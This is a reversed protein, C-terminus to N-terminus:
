QTMARIVSFQISAMAAPFRTVAGSGHIEDDGADGFITDNGQGGTLVDNGAGGHMTVAISSSVGSLDIVDDGAGGDVIIKHVGSFRGFGKVEVPSQDVGNVTFSSIVVDSGDMGVVLHENGDSTDGNLRSAANPGLNLTLTDGNMSGMMPPKTPTVDFSFLTIRAFEFEAKFFLFEVYADMFLDIKGSVDFVSLPNFDNAALLAALENIRIKGDGDLDDFNFDITAQIGGEVGASAVGLSIAAGVRIQATLFAEPKDVGASNLDTLFFGDILDAPNHTSIFESLGRTDYGFGM